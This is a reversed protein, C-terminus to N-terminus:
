DAFPNISHTWNLLDMGLAYTFLNSAQSVSRMKSPAQSYFFELATISAFIESIGVFAFQPIQWLISLSSMQPIDSCDICKLDLLGTIPDIDSCIQSCESPESDETGAVYGRYKYPDYNDIDKCPSINDRASTDYYDGPEPARNLRYQEIGASILMAIVALSFGIGIKYLM